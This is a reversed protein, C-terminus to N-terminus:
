VVAIRALHGVPLQDCHAPHIRVKAVVSFGGYREFNDSADEPLLIPLITSHLFSYHLAQLESTTSFRFYPVVFAWQQQYFLRKFYVSWDNSNFLHLVEAQGGRGNRRLQLGSSDHTQELPLDRDSVDYEIFDLITRQMNLLALIAFIKQRVTVSLRKTQKLVMSGCIQRTVDDTTDAPVINSSLLVKKVRDPAIINHLADLPLFKMQRDRSPRLAGSIDERINEIEDVLGNAPSVRADNENTTRDSSGHPPSEPVAVGEPENHTDTRNLMVGGPAQTSLPGIADLLATM